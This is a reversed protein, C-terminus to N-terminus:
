VTEEARQITCVNEAPDTVRFGFADFHDIGMLSNGRRVVFFEFSPLEVNKWSVPLKVTGLTQIETGGFAQLKRTTPEIRAAARLRKYLGVNLVSVQAGLDM